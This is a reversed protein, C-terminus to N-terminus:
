KLHEKLEVKFARAKEGRYHGLNGLCYSVVMTGSDAYYDDDTTNMTLMAELYPQAFSKTNGKLEPDALIDKAIEHLPRLDTKVTM